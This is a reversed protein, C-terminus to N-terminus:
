ECVFAELQEDKWAALYIVEPFKALDTFWPRFEEITCYNGLAKVTQIFVKDYVRYNVM